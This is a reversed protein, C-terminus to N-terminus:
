IIQDTPCPADSEPESAQRGAPLTVPKFGQRGFAHVAENTPRSDPDGILSASEFDTKM